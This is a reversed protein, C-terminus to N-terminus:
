FFFPLLGGAVHVREHGMEEGHLNVETATRISTLQERWARMNRPQPESSGHEDDATEMTKTVLLLRTTNERNDSEIFRRVGRVRSM